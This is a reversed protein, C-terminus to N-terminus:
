ASGKCHNFVITAARLWWAEAYLTPQDGRVYTPVYPSPALLLTPALTCDGTYIGLAAQFLADNPSALTLVGLAAAEWGTAAGGNVATSLLIEEVEIHQQYDEVGPVELVFDAEDGNTPGGLRAIGRALIGQLNSRVLTNIANGMYTYNVDHPQGMFWANAQGYTQLRALAPEDKMQYACGMYLTLDDRSVTSSSGSPYCEGSAKPRRHIEGPVWEALDIDVTAGGLCAVGAWVTSDCDTVSPWGSNAAVAAGFDETKSLFADHLQDALAATEATPKSHKPELKACGTTLLLAM